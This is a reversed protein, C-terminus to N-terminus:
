VNPNNNREVAPLPFCRVDGYVGGQRYPEGVAPTQPLNFRRLDWLHHGELYLERSREEIVQQRIEDEDSSTFHPLGWHDRLANIQDVAEQGGEAEAIILRAERWSAVPVPNERIGAGYSTGYKTVMWVPTASDHGLDDTDFAEVRPDPVGDVTLGRFSPDVTINGAWFEAGVRNYRRSETVSATAFVEFEADRGLVARADAAAGTLNGQNLRARARGLQALNLIKDNGAAQAAEIAQTFRAEAAAFVQGPQVEPGLEEIVTSCFGEGMLTHSYGSYAAAQAILDTRNAVEADTWQQLLNLANNSTWIATALPRYIGPPNGNCGNTGYPSTDNINRSDLPFRSATVSADRLENGLLGSNVIYAGLACEFDAITGSVLLHANDPDDMLGADVMGPAEVSLANDLVDCGGLFVGLALASSLVRWSAGRRARSRTSRHRIREMAANDGTSYHCNERLSM